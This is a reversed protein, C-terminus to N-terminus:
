DERVPKRPNNFCLGHRNCYAYFKGFGRRQFTAECSQEPYLKVLQLRDGSVLAMFTIYHERTMPHDVTVYYDGDIIEVNIEHAPDPEEAELPPLTIGCCSYSGEGMAHIINGCIPCVYFKSKLMNGSRNINTTIDGTLLEEVSIGLSAALDKIISIDPLGRGTEWKSITKDSVSLKEAMDKQTMHKKERLAKITTGNIYNM